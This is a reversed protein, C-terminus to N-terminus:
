LALSRTSSANVADPEAVRDDPDRLEVVQDLRDERDLAEGRCQERHLVDAELRDIGAVDRGVQHGEDVPPGRTADVVDASRCDRPWSSRARIYRVDRPLRRRTTARGTGPPITAPRRAPAFRTGAFGTPVIPNAWYRARVVHDPRHKRREKWTPEDSILM